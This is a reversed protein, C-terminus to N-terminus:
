CRVSPCAASDDRSSRRRACTRSRSQGSCPYWTRPRAVLRRGHRSSRRHRRLLRTAGRPWRRRQRALSCRFLPSGARARYLQERPPRSPYPHHDVRGLSAALHRQVDVGEAGVRHHNGGVLDVPRAPNAPEGSERRVKAPLNRAMRCPPLWCCPSRGPVSSTGPITANASATRIATASCDPSAARSARSRSLNSARRVVPAFTMTCPAACGRSGFVEDTGNRLGSAAAMRFCTGSNAIPVPAAHAVWSVTDLGTSRAM